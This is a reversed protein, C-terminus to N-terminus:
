RWAQYGEAELKKALEPGGSTVVRGEVLLHV